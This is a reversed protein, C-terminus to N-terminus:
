SHRRRDRYHRAHHLRPVVADDGVAGVSTLLMYLCVSEYM